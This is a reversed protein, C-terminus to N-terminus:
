LLRDDPYVCAIFTEYDLPTGVKMGFIRYTHDSWQLENKAVDLHWSGIGGVEQARKLSDESAHLALESRSRQASLVAVSFATMGFLLNYLWVYNVLADMSDENMGVVALLGLVSSLFILLLAGGVCRLDFNLAIWILLPFLLGFELLRNPLDFFLVAGVTALVAAVLIGRRIREKDWVISDGRLWALILPTFLAIGLADGMWWYRLAHLFEGWGGGFAQMIWWAGNAAALLPSVLVGFLFLSGIDRLSRLRVDFTSCHRLLYYGLLGGLANGCSIGVVSALPLGTMLNAFFEGIFIAPFVRWGFILLSALAIGSPPWFLTVTNHLLALALGLKATLFYVVSLAAIRMLDTRDYGFM